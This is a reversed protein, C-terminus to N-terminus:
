SLHSVNRNCLFETMAVYSSLHRKHAGKFGYPCHAIASRCAVLCCPTPSRSRSFPELGSVYLAARECGLATRNGSVSFEGAYGFAYNGFSPRSAVRNHGAGASYAERRLCERWSTLAVRKLGLQRLSQAGIAIMRISPLVATAIPACIATRRFNRIRSGHAMRRERLSRASPCHCIASM